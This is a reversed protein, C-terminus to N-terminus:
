RNRLTYLKSMLNGGRGALSKKTSSTVRVTPVSWSLLHHDSLDVDTVLVQGASVYDLQTIVVDITGGSTRLRHM